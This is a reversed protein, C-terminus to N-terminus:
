VGLLSAEPSVFVAWVEIKSKWGGPSHSIFKQEKFGETQAGFMSM